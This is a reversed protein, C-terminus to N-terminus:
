NKTSVHQKRVSQDLKGTGKLLGPYYNQLAQKFFL